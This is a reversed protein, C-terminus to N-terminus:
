DGDAFAGAAFAAAVDDARQRLEEAIELAADRKIPWRSIPPHGKGPAVYNAYPTENVMVAGRRTRKVVWAGRLRGTKVPSANEAKDKARNLATEIIDRVVDGPDHSPASPPHIRMTLGLKAM